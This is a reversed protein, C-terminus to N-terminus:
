KSTNKLETAEKLLEPFHEILVKAPCYTRAWNFAEYDAMPIIREGNFATMSGGKGHLFYHKGQPSIYLAAEWSDLPNNSSSASSILTGNETNYRIGNITKKM